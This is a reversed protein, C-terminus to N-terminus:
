SRDEPKASPLRTRAARLRAGLDISASVSVSRQVPANGTRDGLTSAVSLAFAPSPPDSEDEFAEALRTLAMNAVTSARDQFDAFASEKVDRYHAVLEKFTPDGKLISIRSPDYGTVASAEADTFGDALCRALAHHRDRLKQITPPATGRESALLAIDSEGLDSVFRASLPRAARGGLRPTVAIDLEAVSM